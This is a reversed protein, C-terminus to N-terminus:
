QRVECHEAWSITIEIERIVAFVAPSITGSDYRSRLWKLKERLAATSTTTLNPTAHM